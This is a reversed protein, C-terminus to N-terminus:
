SFSWREQWWGGGSVKTLASLFSRTYHYSNNHSCGVRILGWPITMRSSPWANVNVCITDLMTKPDAIIHVITNYHWTPALNLVALLAVHGMLQWTDSITVLGTREKGNSDHFVQWKKGMILGCIPRRCLKSESQCLHPTRLKYFNILNRGFIHFYWNLSWYYCYYNILNLNM